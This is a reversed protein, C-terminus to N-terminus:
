VTAVERNILVRKREVGWRYGAMSGSQGMVRHCPIALAIPNEACAQAIARLSKSGSVRCALQTYTLPRGSPITRLANWVRLQFPTGRMDLALDLEKKPAGVFRVVKSLDDRLRDNNLILKSSPFLAALDNRLENADSGFLIACIGVSSRAIAIEGLDCTGNSHEIYNGNASANPKSPMGTTILDM